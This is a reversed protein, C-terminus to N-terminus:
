AAVMVREPESLASCLVGAVQVVKQATQRVVDADGGSWRAVYPLSYAEAVMGASACVIYAVSEAEVELRGRCGAFLEAEHGCLIHGLEHALTKCAQADSVDARVTVTRAGFDTRGNAGGIEAASDCRVLSFGAASVQMELSQWLGAPAEGDLLAPMIPEDLEAGDTQSIDFVSVVTFGRLIWRDEGTEHDEVKYRCPALIRIGHEGKRVWRDLSKWTQFGAVRSATPMQSLILLVNNPSYHHFRAAVDLMRAWDESTTLEAVQHELQSHIEALREARDSTKQDTISDM